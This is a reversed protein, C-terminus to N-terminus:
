VHVDQQGVFIIFEEFASIKDEITEPVGLTSLRESPMLYFGLPIDM